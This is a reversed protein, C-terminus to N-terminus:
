EDDAFEGEADLEDDVVFDDGLGEEEDRGGGRGGAAASPRPRSSYSAAATQKAVEDCADIWDAYM